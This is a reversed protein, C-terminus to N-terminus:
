NYQGIILYQRRGGADLLYGHVTRLGRTEDAYEGTANKDGIV